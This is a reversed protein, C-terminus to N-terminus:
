FVKNGKRLNDAAPLYQLNWPVHLGCVNEGQLPIIHDVHHGDPRFAYIQRMQEKLASSLWAPMACLKAAQYERTYASCRDKNAARWRKNDALVKAYNARVWKLSSANSKDRNNTTWRRNKANVKAPNKKQYAVQQTVRCQKCAYALGDKAGKRKGFSTLEKNEGCSTCTKV